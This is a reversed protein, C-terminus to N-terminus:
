ASGDPQLVLKGALSSTKSVTHSEQLQHAQATESLPMVRDILPKILGASLWHNIDQAAGRQLEAAAKFMVFGHLSCGKVYFPGVPFEPRAQRGAMLVMRAEDTMCAVALDFDPDRLTEWFLNVGGPCFEQVATAIDTTRYDIVHDAGLKQCLAAKEPGGATTIVKAGMAKAMQVVM